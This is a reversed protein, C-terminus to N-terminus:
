NTIADAVRLDPLTNKAVTRWDVAAVTNDDHECVEKQM